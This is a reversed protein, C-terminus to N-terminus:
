PRRRLEVKVPALMGVSVDVEFTSVTEYGDIEPLTVAYRGPPDVAFAPRADRIRRWLCRGSGGVPAVAISDVLRQSLEVPKGDATLEVTAGGVPRVRAVLEQEGPFLAAPTADDLTWLDAGFSELVGRGIPVSSGFTHTAEDYLLLIPSAAAGGDKREPTWDLWSLKVPSGDAASVVRVRLQTHTSAELAVDTTGTPPVDVLTTTSTGRITIAYKGPLVDGAEWRYAGSRGPIPALDAADLEIRDESIAGPIGRPAFSLGLKEDPWDPPVQLTGALPAAAPMAFPALELEVRATEHAAVRVSKSALVIPPTFGVEVSVTVNGPVLEDVRTDGLTAPLNRYMSSSVEEHRLQLVPDRPPRPPGATGFDVVQRPKRPPPPPTTKPLEGRITVLLVGCATLEVTRDKSDRFDISEGYRVYGPATIWFSERPEIPSSRAGPTLTVPSTAHEVARDESNSRIVTVDAIEARTDRDVVHVRVSRLQPTGNVPAPAVPAEASPTRQAEVSDRPPPPASEAKADAVSPPAVGPSATHRPSVEDHGATWWWAGGVLAGVMLLLGVFVVARM